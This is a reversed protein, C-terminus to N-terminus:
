SDACNACIPRMSCYRCPPPDACPSPAIPYYGEAIQAAANQINEYTWQRMTQFAEESKLMKSGAFSIGGGSLRRGGIVGTESGGTMGDLVCRDDLVFGNMVFQKEGDKAPTCSLHSKVTTIDDGFKFYLAGGPYATGKPYSDLVANLYTLLQLKIGAQIERDSLTVPASKYDIVRVYKKGNEEMIDYRDIRGTVSIKELFPTKASPKLVIPRLISHDTDDFPVEFGCVSFAGADLQKKVYFFAAAAYKKIRELAHTERGSLETDAFRMKAAVTGYVSEVIERCQALDAAGRPLLFLHDSAENVIEHLVTGLDYLELAAEERPKLRLGYSLLYSFPCKYYSEIRSVTTHFVGKLKLLDLNTQEEIRVETDPSKESLHRESQPQRCISIQPFVNRIKRLIVPSPKMEKGSIDELPWSIELFDSPLSLATYIYYNEKSAKASSDDALEVRYKKLLEREQDRLIGDDAFHSPLVGENAGLLFLAKVEGSRSREINMIQVSDISSPLFGIKYQSFGASLLRLLKGAADAAGHVPLGGLFLVVQEIVEMVINWIRSYEESLEPQSSARLEESLAEMTQRFEWKSFFLSFAICVEKVTKCNSFSATLADLESFFLVCSEESEKKWRRRGRLGKKLIYNEMRDSDAGFNLIGSKLCELVDKIQWDDALISLIGLITKILPNNDLMKKDDIYFPIGYKKFVAKIMVDYGEVNRLAVAIHRYEAAGTDHLRRIQRACRVVEDYPGHCEALTIQQASRKEAACRLTPLAQELYFLSSNGYKSRNSELDASLNVVSCPIGNREALDKLRRFTNDTCEFAPEGRLDTCLTVTVSRCQRLMLTILEFEKSTFGTFSDIWVSRGRFFENKRIHNLMREFVDNEDTFRDKKMAQYEQLILGLDRLKRDLYVDGTELGGLLKWTVDYKGFEELLSLLRAIEGPREFLGSFYKLKGSLNELASTLMMIKGCECLPEAADGGYTSLIRYSFRKFNLVEHGILGQIKFGEAKQYDLLRRETLMTYQEPVFFYAYADAAGSRQIYANFETICKGSKGSGTRGAVLNLM